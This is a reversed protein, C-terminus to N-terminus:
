DKLHFTQKMAKMMGPTSWTGPVIMRRITYLPEISDRKSSLIFAMKYGRSKIEPIAAQNWIGFPYAFYRIPKGTIGELKHQPNVLQTDWDATTYKTVMHHDWTHCEVQHGEDSLQKLQEKSMYRPRNISITMVFYLGKFGYKDMETKGISFQEEDTDDYTLMVPKPPIPKNYLLYDYLQDPTITKYGSDNLAKMQEAFAAPTVSYSKMRESEGPRFNRIHHYCLVPVEKKALITALDNAKVSSTQLSDKTSKGAQTTNNKEKSDTSSGEKCSAAVLLTALILVKNFTM